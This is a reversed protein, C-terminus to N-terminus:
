RNGRRVASLRLPHRGRANLARTERGGRAPCSLGIYTAQSAARDPGPTTATRRSTMGGGRARAFDPESAPRTEAGARLVTWGLFKFMMLYILRLAM